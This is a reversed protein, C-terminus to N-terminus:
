KNEKIDKLSFEIKHAKCYHIFKDFEQSTLQKDNSAVSLVTYRKDDEMIPLSSFDVNKDMTNMIDIFFNESTHATLTLRYIHTNNQPYHLELAELIMAQAMQPFGPVFFFRNDLYFGPVNSVPNYLLKTNIPLDAMHVRHPYAEDGFKDIIANLAEQNREMQTDRFVNAACKRTFDDPTAGIGGFSFLVSQPDSQVLKFVNEIFDPEDKIVFSGKHTWGRKLLEKNLFSFHKDVRRGNLLESGIIVSYFNM